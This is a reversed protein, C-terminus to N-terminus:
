RQRSTFHFTRGHWRRERGSLLLQRRSQGDGLKNNQKKPNPQPRPRPHPLPTHKQQISKMLLSIQKRWTPLFTFLFFCFVYYYFPPSIFLSGPRHNFHLFLFQFWDITIWQSHSRIPRTQNASRYQVLFGSGSSQSSSASVSVFGFFFFPPSPSPRTAQWWPVLPHPFSSRRRWHRVVGASSFQGDRQTVADRVTHNSPGSDGVGMSGDFCNSIMFFCLSIPRPFNFCFILFYIM